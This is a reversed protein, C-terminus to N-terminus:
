TFFPEFELVTAIQRQLPPSRIAPLSVCLVEALDEIVGRSGRESDATADAGAVRDEREAAVARDAQTRDGAQPADTFRSKHVEIHM